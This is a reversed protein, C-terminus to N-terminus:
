CFRLRSRADDESTGPRSKPLTFRFEMGRDRNPAAVLRGGEARIISQCVSLGLGLGEPKTTYFPDFLRDIDEVPTGPGNDRVAIEIADPPADAVRIALKREHQSNDSMAQIANRVLNLLAQQFLVRDCTVSPLGPAVDLEAETQTQKLEPAALHLAEKVAEELDVRSRRLASKTVFRRMRRLVEAAREASADISDLDCMVKDLDVDGSRILSRCAECFNRIAFLPQNVEHAVAGAMEGVASVRSVRALESQLNRAREESAQLAALAGTRDRLLNVREFCRELAAFLEPPNVPKRLYDYAGHQLATIANDLDAHATIIV